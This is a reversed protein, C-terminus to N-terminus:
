CCTKKNFCLTKPIM